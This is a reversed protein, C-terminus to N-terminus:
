RVGRDRFRRDPSDVKFSNDSIWFWQLNESPVSVEWDANAEFSLTLTSGPAVNSDQVLEPFIPTIKVPPEPEKCSSIVLATGLMLVALMRFTNMIRM